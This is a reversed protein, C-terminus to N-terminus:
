LASDAVLLLLTFVPQSVCYNLSRDFPRHLDLSGVPTTDAQFDDEM